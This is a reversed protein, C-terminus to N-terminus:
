DPYKKIHAKIAADMDKRYYKFSSFVASANDKHGSHKVGEGDLESMYRMADMADRAITALRVQLEALDREEAATKM